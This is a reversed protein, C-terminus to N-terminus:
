IESKPLIRRHMVSFWLPPIAALLMMGPYGTPMQPSDDFHRLIPYKRSAVYHHDSHRSLELLLLRGIPHNSNWSHIHMTREYGRETKKRRLGYHEIYNVTELLLIGIMAAALFALLAQGGFVVGIVALFLLQITQFRLMENHWSWFSHGQRKLQQAELKWASLWSGSISRLHFAFLSEGYKASAPDEDTSVHKHHGRNHEIFFHMYLSTLLLVKSMNQEYKTLRHGLEHAANIGIVGCALGMATVNGLWEYFPIPQQIVLLFYALVIFQLPVLGYLIWDYSRDKLVEREEVENLNATSAKTFLELGPVVGFLVVLATYSWWGPLYISLAVLFPTTYVAMYKWKKM